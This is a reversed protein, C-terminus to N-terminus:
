APVGDPLASPRCRPPLSSSRYGAELTSGPMPLDDSNGEPTIIRLPGAALRVNGMWFALARYRWAMALLAEQQPAPAGATLAVLEDALEHLMIPTLLGV